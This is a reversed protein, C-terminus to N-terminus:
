KSNRNKVPKPLEKESIQKISPYKSEDSVEINIAYNYHVKSKDRADISKKVINISKIDSPNIKNKKIVKNFLEEETLDEYIKINDIRLM